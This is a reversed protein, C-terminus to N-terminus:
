GRKLHGMGDSMYGGEGVAEHPEPAHEFDRLLANTMGVSGDHEGGDSPRSIIKFMDILGPSVVTFGTQKSPTIGEVDSQPATIPPNEVAEREKKIDAKVEARRAHEFVISPEPTELRRLREAELVAELAENVVVEPEPKPPLLHKYPPRGVPRKPRSADKKPNASVPGSMKAGCRLRELQKSYQLFLEPSVDAVLMKKSLLVMQQKTTLPRQPKPHRILSKLPKRPAKDFSM